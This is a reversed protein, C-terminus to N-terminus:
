AFLTALLAERVVEQRMRRRGTDTSSTRAADYYDYLKPYREWNEVNEIRNVFDTLREAATVDDVMAGEQILSEVAGFLSYYDAQNRLRSNRLTGTLLGNIREFTTRFRREIITEQEWEDDRASFAADLEAISHGRPGEELLLLLDAIFEVDKMQLRSMSVIRPVDPSAEFVYEALREATAIFHGSFRAHRLEQATLRRTNRNIRDFINNLTNEEITPIYEITFQYSWFTNKYDPLQSFYKGRAAVIPSQDSIPFEDDAFRFVTELRQKGDVVSYSETGTDENIARHLFIAPSPYQLLITEIFYERFALNWVSRRQYPPDMDLLGRKYLDRLWAVTQQNAHRTKQGTQNM